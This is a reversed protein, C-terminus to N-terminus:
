GTWGLTIRCLAGRRLPTGPAPQQDVVRGEGSYEVEAGMERLRMLADRLTADRLDPMAAGAGAVQAGTEPDPTRPAV